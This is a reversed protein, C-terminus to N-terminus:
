KYSPDTRESDERAPGLRDRLLCRSHHVVETVFRGLEPSGVPSAAFLDEWLSLASGRNATEHSEFPLSM